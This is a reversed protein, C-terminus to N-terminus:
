RRALTVRFRLTFIQTNNKAVPPNFEAQYYGWYQFSFLLSKIGGPVTNGQDLAVSVDADRFYSGPTYPRIAGSPFFGIQNEPQSTVPGVGSASVGGYGAGDLIPGRLFNTTNAWSNTGLNAPRLRVSTEVGALNVTSLSDAVAPYITLRYTVELYEDALVTITTPQGNGDLVLARCFLTGPSSQDSGVGVEAINGAAQGQGFRYTRSVIVPYPAVSDSTVTQATLTQTGAIQAVLATQGVAPATSGSGVRCWVNTSGTTHLLNLGQNLILNEFEALERRGSGDAKIAVLSFHGKLQVNLNVESAQQM